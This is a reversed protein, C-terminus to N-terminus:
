AQSIYPAMAGRSFVHQALNSEANFYLGGAMDTDRLTTPSLWSALRVLATSSLEDFHRRIDRKSIIDLDVFYIPLLCKCVITFSDCTLVVKKIKLSICAKLSAATYRTTKTQPWIEELFGWIWFITRWLEGGEHGKETEVYTEPRWCRAVRSRRSFQPQGIFTPRLFKGVAAMALSCGHGGICLYIASKQNVKNKRSKPQPFRLLLHVLGLFPQIM